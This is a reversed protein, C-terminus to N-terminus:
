LRTVGAPSGPRTDLVVRDGDRLQRTADPMIFGPVGHERMVVALHCLRAGGEFIFGLSGPAAEYVLSDLIHLPRETVLIEPEARDAAATSRRSHAHRDISAEVADPPLRLQRIRGVVRGHSLVSQQGTPLSTPSQYIDVLFFAGQPTFGFEVGAGQRREALGAAARRIEALQGASASIPHEVPVRVKIGGVVQVAFTQRGPLHVQVNGSPDLVYVTPDELGKTVFHGHVLEVRVSGDPLTVAVGTSATEQLEKLLFAFREHKSAVAQVFQSLSALATPGTGFTRFVSGNLHFPHLLVAIFEGWGAITQAAAAISAAHPTRALGVLGQSIPICLEAALLRLGVKDHQAVAAPLRDVEDALTPVLELAGRPVDIQGTIPRAQLIVYHGNLFAWEIDAPEGLVVQVDTALARLTKIELAAFEAPPDAHDELNWRTGSSQGDVLRGLHGTVAEVIMGEAEGLPDRTFLVGSHTPEVMEQVLVGMPVARGVASMARASAGLARCKAVAALVDGPSAPVRLFSEFLGALALRAGDEGVGSSRVAVFRAGSQTRLRVLQEEIMADGLEADADIVFGAPVPLGAQALRIWVGAKGGVRGGTGGQCSGSTM